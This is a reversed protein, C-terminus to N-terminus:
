FVLQGRLQGGLIEEDDTDLGSIHSYNIGAIFRINKNLFLNLAFSGEDMRGLSVNSLEALSYRAAIMWTGYKSDSLNPRAFTAKDVIYNSSGGNLFYSFTTYFSFVERSSDEDSSSPRVIAFESRLDFPGNLYVFENNIIAYNNVESLTGGALNPSTDSGTSTQTSLSLSDSDDTTQYIFSTALHVVEEKTLVPRYALFASLQWPYKGESSADLTETLVTFNFHIAEDNFGLGTGLGRENLIRSHLPAREAFSIWNSSTRSALSSRTKFQGLTLDFKESLPFSIYADQTAESEFDYTYKGKWSDKKGFTLKLRLRRFDTDDEIPVEDADFISRDLQARGGLGLFYDSNKYTLGKSNAIFSEEALLSTTPVLLLLLVTLLKFSNIFM